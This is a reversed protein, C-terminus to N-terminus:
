HLSKRVNAILSCSHLSNLRQGRFIRGFTSLLYWVSYSPTSIASASKPRWWVSWCWVSSAPNTLTLRKVINELYFPFQGGWTMWRTKVKHAIMVKKPLKEMMLDLIFNNLTDHAMCGTFGMPVLKLNPYKEIFWSIVLVMFRISTNFFYRNCSRLAWHSQRLNSNKRILM